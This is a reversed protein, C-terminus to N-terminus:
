SSVMLVYDTLHLSANPGVPRFSEWCESLGPNSGHCLLGPCVQLAKLKRQIDCSINFISSSVFHIDQKDGCDPRVPLQRQTQRCTGMWCGGSIREGLVEGDCCADPNLAFYFTLGETDAPCSCKAWLDRNMFGTRHTCSILFTPNQTAPRMTEGQVRSDRRFRFQVFDGSVWLCIWMGLCWVSLSTWM